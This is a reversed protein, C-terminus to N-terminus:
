CVQLSVAFGVAAIRFGFALCWGRCAVMFVRLGLGVCGVLVVIWGVFVIM